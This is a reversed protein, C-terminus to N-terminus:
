SAPPQGAAVALAQLQAALDPISGTWAAVLTNIEADEAVLAALEAAIEAKRALLGSATTLRTALDTLSPLEPIAM